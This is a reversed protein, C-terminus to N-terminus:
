YVLSEATESNPDKAQLTGDLEALEMAARAHGQEAAAQLWEKAEVESLDRSLERSFMGGLNYMAPPHPRPSRRPAVLARSRPRRRRRGPRHPLGHRAHEACQRSRSRGRHRYWDLADGFSQAVGFGKLHLVALAYAGDANGAEAAQTAWRLAEDYRPHVGDGTTYMTALKAAAVDNGAEAADRFWTVALAANREVGLGAHYLLGLEHAAFPDGHKAAKRFWRLAQAHDQEVGEGRKYATAVRLMGEASGQDAAMSWWRYARVFDQQQGEGRHFLDGMTVQAGADSQELARDIMAKGQAIEGRAIMFRGFERQAPAHGAEAARGFWRRAVAHAETDRHDALALAVATMAEAEGARAKELMAADLEAEFANPAAPEVGIQNCAVLALVSLSLAGGVFRRSFRRVSM